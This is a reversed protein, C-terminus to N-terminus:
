KDIQNELHELGYAVFEVDISEHVLQRWLLCNDGLHM